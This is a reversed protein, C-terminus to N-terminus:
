RRAWWALAISVPAMVVLVLPLPYRMIGVAVFAAAAVLLAPVGERLMPQAMKLVTGSILGVAAAAVGALIRQLADTDGFRGYLAGLTLVIAMPPLLLGALATAAGAPGHLRGGFVVALNVVNAGPLFQAVAFAENFEQATMWRKDEVIARRAWPLVGGFGHLAMTFFARFLESLSPHATARQPVPNAPVPPTPSPEHMDLQYRRPRHAALANSALGARSTPTDRRPKL